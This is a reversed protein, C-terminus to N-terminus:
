GGGWLVRATPENDYVKPQISEIIDQVASLDDKELIAKRAAEITEAYAFIIGHTYDTLVEDWVFLKMTADEGM